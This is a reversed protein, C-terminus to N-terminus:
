RTRRVHYTPFTGFQKAWEVHKVFECTFGRAREVAALAAFAQSAYVQGPPTITYARCSALFPMQQSWVGRLTM